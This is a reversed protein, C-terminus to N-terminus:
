SRQGSTTTRGSYGRTAYIWALGLVPLVLPVYVYGRGFHSWVTDDEFLQPEFTTMLGVALVGIMEILVATAAVPWWTRGGKAMAVTAVLYVAAAFASLLYALPAVDFKAFLQYLSRALTSIAFVGYVAVLIRGPGKSTRYPSDVM